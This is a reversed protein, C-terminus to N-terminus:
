VNQEEKSSSIHNESPKRPPVPGLYQYYYTKIKGNYLKRNKGKLGFIAEFGEHSTIINMSWTTNPLFKNGMLKYLRECELHESMREGYPPNTIVYAYKKKSSFDEFDLKQFSVAEEVGMNMANEEAMKISFYDNDSGIITLNRDYNIQQLAFRREEIHLQKLTDSWKQFAFTRNIGPAMNMGIMAAEIPITGSGCFPDYLTRDPHWKSLIILAAALTEKIPASNQKARYGRKHLGIGSTDISLTVTDKLNSVLISYTDEGNEDFWSTNYDKKLSEVVAKKVIAQSDSLSFLTAKVAKAKSVPFVGDRTIYHSWPLKKTKEFLEDWTRATFEGVVLLVRDATRLWLNAKVMGRLDTKFYIKGNDVHVDHFGLRKCEKATISEIGFASTAIFQYQKNLDM